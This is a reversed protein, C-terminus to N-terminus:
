AQRSHRFGTASGVLLFMAAVLPLVSAAFVDAVTVPGGSTYLAALWYLSTLFLVFGIVMLGVLAWRSGARAPFSLAVAAHAFVLMLVTPGGGLFWVLASAVVSGVVGVWMFARWSPMRKM